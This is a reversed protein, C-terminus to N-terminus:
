NLGAPAGKLTMPLGAVIFFVDSCIEALRQHTSGALDRFSRAMPNDPVIGLIIEVGSLTPKTATIAHAGQSNAALLSDRMATSFGAGPQVIHIILLGVVIAIHNKLRHIIASPALTDSVM